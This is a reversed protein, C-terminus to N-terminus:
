AAHGGIFDSLRNLFLACSGQYSSAGPGNLNEANGTLFNGRGDEAEGTIADTM